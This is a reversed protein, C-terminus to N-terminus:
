VMLKLVCMRDVTFTFAKNGDRFNVNNYFLTLKGDENDIPVLKAKDLHSCISTDRFASSCIREMTMLALKGALVFLDRRQSAEILFDIAKKYFAKNESYPNCFKSFSMLVSRYCMDTLGSALEREMDADPMIEKISSRSLVAELKNDIQDFLLKNELQNVVWVLEVRFLPEDKGIGGKYKANTDPNLAISQEVMMEFLPLFEDYHSGIWQEIRKWYNPWQPDYPGEDNDDKTPPEIVGRGTAIGERIKVWKSYSEMDLYIPLNNCIECAGFKMLKKLGIRKLVFMKKNM